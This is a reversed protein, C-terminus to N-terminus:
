LWIHNEDSTWQEDTYQSLIWEPISGQYMRKIHAVTFGVVGGSPESALDLGARICCHLQSIFHRPKEGYDPIYFEDFYDSFYDCINSDWDTISEFGFDSEVSEFFSELNLVLKAIRAETADFAYKAMRVAFDKWREAQKPTM